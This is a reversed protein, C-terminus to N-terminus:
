HLLTELNVHELPQSEGSMWEPRNLAFWDKADWRFYTIAARFPPGNRGM